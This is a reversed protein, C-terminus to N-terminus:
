YGRCNSVAYVDYRLVEEHQDLSTRNRSSTDHIIPAGEEDFGAVNVTHQYEDVTGDPNTRYTRIRATAAYQQITDDEIAAAVRTMDVTQPDFSVTEIHHGTAAQLIEETDETALLNGDRFFGDRCYWNLTGPNSREDGSITNIMNSVGTLVCGSSGVTTISRSGLPEENWWGEQQFHTHGAHIPIFRLGERDLFNVPDGAAYEFWDLHHLAPDVSTFSGLDPLYVRERGWLARTGPVHLMGYVVRDYPVAAPFQPGDEPPSLTGGSVEPLVDSWRQYRVLGSTRDVRSLGRTTSRLDTFPMYIAAADVLFLVRGNQSVEVCSSPDQPPDTGDTAGERYRAISDGPDEDHRSWHRVVLPGGHSEYHVTSCTWRRGRESDIVLVPDGRADRVVTWDGGDSNTVRQPRGSTEDYTISTGESEAIRGAADRRTRRRSAYLLDHQNVVSPPEPPTVSIGATQWSASLARAVPTPVAEIVGATGGSASKLRGGRGYRFVQTRGDVRQEATVQGDANRVTSVADLVESFGSRSLRAVSAISTAGDAGHRFALSLTDALEVADRDARITHDGDITITTESEGDHIELSAAGGTVTAGQRHPLYEITQGTRHAADNIHTEVTVPRGAIDRTRSTNVVPFHPLTITEATIAGYPDTTIERRAEGAEISVENRSDDVRYRRPVQGPVQYSELRTGAYTYAHEVHEDGSQVTITSPLGTGVWSMSAIEEEDARIRRVAGSRLQEVRYHPDGERAYTVHMGPVVEERREVYGLLRYDHIGPAPFDAEYITGGIRSWQEVLRNRADFFLRSLLNGQTTRTEIHYGGDDDALHRTTLHSTREETVAGLTDRQYTRTTGDSRTEQVSEEGYTWRVRYGDGATFSVPRQWHDRRETHVAGRRDTFVRTRGGDSYSWSEQTGDPFRIATLRGFRDVEATRVITGDRTTVTHDDRYHYTVTEGSEDRVRRPRGGGDLDILVTEGTPTNLEVRGGPRHVRRRVSGDPYRYGQHEGH